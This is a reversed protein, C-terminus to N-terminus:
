IGLNSPLYYRKGNRSWSIDGQEEPQVHCSEQEPALLRGVRRSMDRHMIDGSTDTQVIQMEEDRAAGMSCGRVEISNHGEIVRQTVKTVIDQQQLYHKVIADAAVNWAIARALAEFNVCSHKLEGALVTYATRPCHLRLQLVQLVARLNERLADRTVEVHFAPSTTTVLLESFPKNCSLGWAATACALQEDQTPTRHVATAYRDMIDCALALTFPAHSSSSSSIPTSVTSKSCTSNSSSQTNSSARTATRIADAITAVAAPRGTWSFSGPQAGLLPEPDVITTVQSCVISMYLSSITLRKAPDAQLLGRVAAIYMPSAQTPKIEPLHQLGGNAHWTRTQKFTSNGPMLHSETALYYLTAGLSFADGAATLPPDDLPDPDALAEPARYIYTGNVYTPTSASFCTSGLDIIALRPPCPSMVVVNNPKLDGHLIGREHLNYLGIVLDRLCVDLEQVTPQRHHRWLHLPAGSPLQMELADKSTVRAGKCGIVGPIDQGYSALIVAERLNGAALAGGDFLATRKIARGDHTIEVEGFSGKRVQVFNSMKLM